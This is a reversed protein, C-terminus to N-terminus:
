KIKFFTHSPLKLFESNFHELKTFLAIDPKIKKRLVISDENVSLGIM